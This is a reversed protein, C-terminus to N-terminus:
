RARCRDPEVDAAFLRRAIASPQTKVTVSLPIPSLAASILRSNLGNACAFVATDPAAEAAGPEAQAVDPADRARHAAVEVTM